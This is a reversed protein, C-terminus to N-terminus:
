RRLRERRFRRSQWVATLGTGLLFLSEPEPTPSPSTAPAFTLQAGSTFFVGHGTNTNTGSLHLTGTGNLEQSFPSGGSHPLLQLSGTASFQATAAGFPDAPSGSLILPATTIHLTVSTFGRLTQGGVTVSGNDNFNEPGVNLTESLPGAGFTAFVAGPAIGFGTATLGSGAFDFTAFPFDPANLGGISLTGSTLAIPDAVATASGLCLVALATITRRMSV